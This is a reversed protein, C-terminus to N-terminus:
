GICFIAKFFFRETFPFQTALVRVGPVILDRDKYPYNDGRSCLVTYVIHFERIKESGGNNNGFRFQDIM